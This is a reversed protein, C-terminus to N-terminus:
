PETGPPPPGDLLLMPTADYIRLINFALKALIPTVERKSLVARFFDMADAFAGQFEPIKAYLDTLFRERVQALEPHACIFLAHAPDEVSDQCFRCKRWERPVVPKGREQWRRREVALSHSSLVMRTLALRHEPTKVRLYHRFHVTKKVLKATENDKELRGVLLDKTRASNEIEHDVWAEMSMEVLKMANQVDVLNLPGSIDLQVPIYLRSLIIRLDNIWSIRKEQALKLSEQLANWAPREHDLEIWYCLNKLALYVRRYRIPWIGTESFLVAKMSRSGIGLMRRLFKQQVKELLKLSKEEIDLCVECGAILYPDVRAMYLTRLDWVPLTGVFRNVGLMVNAVKSAKKAKIKYQERWMFKCGTELWIGLYCAKQEQQIAKGGLNFTPYWKQRAGFIQYLCKPISTECGNNDAWKQSGNLHM